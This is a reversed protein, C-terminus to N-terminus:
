AARSEERRLLRSREGGAQRHEAAAAAVGAAAIEREVLAAKQDVAGAIIQFANRNIRRRAVQGATRRLNQFELVVEQRRLLGGLDVITGVEGAVRQGAM